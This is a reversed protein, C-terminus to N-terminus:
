VHDAVHVRAKERSELATEDEHPPHKTKAGLLSKLSVSFVEASCLICRKDHMHRRVPRAIHWFCDKWVYNVLLLEGISPESQSHRIAVSRRPRGM